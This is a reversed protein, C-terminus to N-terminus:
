VWVGKSKPKARAKMRRRRVTSSSVRPLNGFGVSRGFARTMRRPQGPKTKAWTVNGPNIFTQTFKRPRPSTSRRISGGTRVSGGGYSPTYSPIEPYEPVASITHSYIDALTRGTTGYIDALSRGTQGYIGALSRGAQGYIGAKQGAIGASAGTLGMLKNYRDLQIQRQLASLQGAGASRVDGMMRMMAGGPAGGRAYAEQLGRLGAQTQAEIPIRGQEYMMAEREPSVEERAQRLLEETGAFMELSRGRGERIAELAQPERSTIAGLASTERGTVGALAKARDEAARRQTEKMAKTIASIPTVQKEGTGHIAQIQKMFSAPNGGTAAMERMLPSLRRQYNASKPDLKMAERLIALRERAM